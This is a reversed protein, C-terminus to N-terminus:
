TGYIGIFDQERLDDLNRLSYSKREAFEGAYPHHFNAFDSKPNEKIFAAGLVLGIKGYDDFFYEELLPIIHNRFAKRLGALSHIGMFYAHGIAFDSGLLTQLRANITALLRDLEIGAEMPPNHKAMLSPQPPINVFSFRRRLAIDLVETSRDTTNMTAILHLNPPVSFQEKSYPLTLQINERTGARKDEELLTILEGFIAPVNGRNIEDIILVYRPAKDLIHDPLIPPLEPLNKDHNSGQDEEEAAGPQYALDLLAQTAQQCIRKFIGEVVQYNIQGDEVTPKIGEVFDEYSFSQHFTVFAIREQRLYDDFRSKLQTREEIALEEQSRGEIIGLAYPVTKYTKGTGPPGYLVQNLPYDKREPPLYTAPPENVMDMQQIYEEISKYQAQTATFNTGPLGANLTKLAPIDEMMDKTLPQQWINYDMLLAVREVKTTMEKFFPLELDHPPRMSPADIVTALGYCGAEKGSQWLIVKDGAKIKDKHSTVAFTSLLGLRLAAKLRFVEPSAQFLWYNISSPNSM